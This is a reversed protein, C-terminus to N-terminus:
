GLVVDACRSGDSHKTWGLTVGPFGRVLCESPRFCESPGGVSDPAAAVRTPRAGRRRPLPRQPPERLVGGPERRYRRAVGRESPGGPRADRVGRPPRGGLRRQPPRGAGRGARLVACRHGRQSGAIGTHIHGRNPTGVGNFRVTFCVEGTEEDVTVRAKGTGDPDADPVEQVGDLSARLTRDRATAIGGIAVIGVLSFAGAAVLLPRRHGGM